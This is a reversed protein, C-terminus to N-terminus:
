AGPPFRYSVHPPVYPGVELVIEAHPRLWVAGPAGSRRRGDVFLRVRAGPGARFSALRHASLPQKWARFLDSLTLRSVPRVLVVGTPELTALAGFCRAGAIRGEVQRIPPRVGIGAAVLVVRGAAFLEVHVGSRRGLDRRCPGPVPGAAPPHFAPGHGIPRSERALAAPIRAAAPISAPAPIRARAPRAASGCGALAVSGAGALSLSAALMLGLRRAAV